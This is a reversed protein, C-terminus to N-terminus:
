RRNGIPEETGDSPDVPLVEEDACGALIGASFAIALVIIIKKM